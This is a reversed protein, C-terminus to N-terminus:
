DTCRVLACPEPRIGKSKDIKTAIHVVLDVTYDPFDQGVNFAIKEGVVPVRGVFYDESTIVSGTVKMIRVVCSM